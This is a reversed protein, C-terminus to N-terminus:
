TTSVCWPSYITEVAHGEALKVEYTYDTISQLLHRYHKELEALVQDIQHREIAYNLARRLGPADFRGKVLYDQAGERMAALAMSEDDTGSIVIIPTNGAVSKLRTFTDLGQSDPLTLDSIIAHFTARECEAIADALRVAPVVDFGDDGRRLITSFLSSDMANDEVILVRKKRQAM